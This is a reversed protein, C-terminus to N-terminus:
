HIRCKFIWHGAGVTSVSLLSKVLGAKCFWITWKELLGTRGKPWCIYGFIIYKNLFAVKSCM